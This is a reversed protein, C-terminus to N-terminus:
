VPQPEPEATIEAEPQRPTALVNKEMLALVLLGGIVLLAAGVRYALAYGHITAVAASTGRSALSAAHRSAVTVLVSLGLAGGVQQFTAQVGSALSSDQGTVEHLSANGITPFSLGSGFGLVAMGPMIGSWYHTGTSIGSTLILGGACLFFAFALLNKVGVKIATGLGIGIGISIGFPLYSLGSRIPHYHLIQQEYLTLLFFYSFFGSAFFLTTVNTVLRTRNEFFSLPILPHDSRSEIFVMVVLLVAGGILPLLVTGSGWSHRAAQLLGDVLAILGATGTIAGAFDPRGSESVM